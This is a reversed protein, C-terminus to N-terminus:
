EGKITSAWTRLSARDANALGLAGVLELAWQGLGENTLPSPPQPVDIDKEYLAPNPLATRPQTACSALSMMLCLSTLGIGIRRWLKHSHKM